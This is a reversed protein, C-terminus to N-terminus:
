AAAGAAAGVTVDVTAIGEPRVVSAGFVHLGRVIDRFQKPDRLAETELIQSAFAFADPVGAILKETVPTKGTGGTKQINNSVMVDLGIVRGIVGNRLGDSTGSKDVTTFRPDNLLASRTKSGIVVWRGETPVSQDDLRESLEVLADYATLGETVRHPDAKIITMADVKNKAHAGAALVKSLYQDAQDRLQIGARKTAVGQLDGAAQVKDVDDVGFAFYKGQDIKIKTPTTALNEVEIDQGKNYDKITLDNLTNITVTDGVGTIQGYYSTSAIGEQGFILAKEYPEVIAANWLEPIFDKVSM